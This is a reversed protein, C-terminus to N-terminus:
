DRGVQRTLDVSAEEGIDEEGDEGTNGDEGGEPVYSGRYRRSFVLLSSEWTSWHLMVQLEVAFPISRFVMALALYWHLGKVFHVEISGDVEFTIGQFHHFISVIPCVEPECEAQESIKKSTHHWLYDHM